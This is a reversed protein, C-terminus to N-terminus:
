DQKREARTRKWVWTRRDTIVQIRTSVTRWLYPGRANPYRLRLVLDPPFASRALWGLADLFRGEMTLPMLWRARIIYRVQSVDGLLRVRSPWLRRWLAPRWNKPVEVPVEIDLEDCIVELAVAIQEWIGESRSIAEIKAWDYPHRLRLRAEAIGLLYRFRDRGQHLLFMVLDYEPDLVSLRTGSDLELQDTGVVWACSRPELGTRLADTQLDVAVGDISMAVSSISRAVSSELIPLTPHSPDLAHVAKQFPEGPGVIVDIDAYIRQTPEVFWRVASAAGKVHTHTVGAADLREHVLEMVENQHKRQAAMTMTFTVLLSREATPIDELEPVASLLLPAMRHEIASIVVAADLQSGEVTHGRAVTRLIHHPHAM